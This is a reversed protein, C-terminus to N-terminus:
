NTRTICYYENGDPDCDPDDSIALNWYNPECLESCEEPDVEWTSGVSHFPSDYYPRGNGTPDPIFMAASPISTVWGPPFATGPDSSVANRLTISLPQTIRPTRRGCDCGHPCLNARADEWCGTCICLGEPCRFDTEGSCIRCHYSNGFKSKQGSYSCSPCTVEVSNIPNLEVGRKEITDGNEDEVVDIAYKESLVRQRYEAFLSGCKPCKLM